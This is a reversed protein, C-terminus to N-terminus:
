LTCSLYLSSLRVSDKLLLLIIRADLYRGFHSTGFCLQIERRGRWGRQHVRQYMQYSQPLTVVTYVGRMPEYDKPANTLRIIAALPALGAKQVAIHLEEHTLGDSAATHRDVPMVHPFVRVNRKGVKVDFTAVPFKAAACSGAVGAPPARSFERHM